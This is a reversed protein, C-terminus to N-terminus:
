APKYWHTSLKGDFYGLAVLKEYDHERLPNAVAEDYTDGTADRYVAM